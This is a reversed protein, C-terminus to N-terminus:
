ARLPWEGSAAPGREIGSVAAVMAGIRSHHNIQISIHRLKAFPKAKKMGSHAIGTRFRRIMKRGTDRM